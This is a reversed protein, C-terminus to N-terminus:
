FTDRLVVCVMNLVYGTICCLGHEFRVGYYLVVCVMNLFTDRSVVCVMNLVYGTICCLM